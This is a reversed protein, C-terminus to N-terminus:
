KKMASAMANMMILCMLGMLIVLGSFVLWLIRTTAPDLYYGLLFAIIGLILPILPCWRCGKMCEPMMKEMPHKM